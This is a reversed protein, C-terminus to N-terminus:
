ITQIVLLIKVEKQSWDKELYDVIERYRQRAHSLWVIQYVM